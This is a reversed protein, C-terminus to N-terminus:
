THTGMAAAKSRSSSDVAGRSLLEGVLGELEARLIRLRGEGDGARSARGREIIERLEAGLSSDLRSGAHLAELRAVLLGIKEVLAEASEAGAGRDIDVITIAQAVGTELDCASVHLIDSEDIGFDVSIRPAGAIAPRIGALLFRGLSLNDAIRASEGQLVHIEVSDQEDTVTTFLRKRSAPVPSNKRILPIFRGGDIEVGYSRSVVDRVRLRESGSMLASEVAAGLAVIEEPNIAGEPKLGFREEILRRVLPIRSSGGSLVLGDIDKVGIGADSLARATLELSREVFPLASEEFEDRTITVEPHLLSGDASRFAFPLAMTAERRESLEIKARESQESLQQALLPDSSVDLGDRELFIRAARRYIEGDLDIGGLKGDGRSALVSCDRGEQSLVTVDFTGGGFDYVLLIRRGTSTLTMGAGPFGKAVASPRSAPFSDLRIASWARALAASTPENLVRVIELGALRGAELLARREPESFHAPATVVARDVGKGLHSEADARLSGLVLGAIEAPRM